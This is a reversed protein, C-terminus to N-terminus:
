VPSYKSKLKEDLIEDPEIYVTSVMKRCMTDFENLSPSSVKTKLEKDQESASDPVEGEEISM